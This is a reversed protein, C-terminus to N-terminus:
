FYFFDVFLFMSLQWQATQNSKLNTDNEFLSALDHDSPLYGIAILAKCNQRIVRAREKWLWASNNVENFFKCVSSIAGISPFDLAGFIRDLAEPPLVNLINICVGDQNLYEIRTDTHVIEVLHIEYGFVNISRPFPWLATM